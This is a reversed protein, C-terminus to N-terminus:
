KLLWVLTCFIKETQPLLSFFPIQCQKPCYIGISEKWQLSWLHGKEKCKSYKWCLWIFNNWTCWHFSLGAKSFTSGLATLRLPTFEALNQILKFLQGMAWTFASHGIECYQKHKVSLHRSLMVVCPVYSFHLPYVSLLTM